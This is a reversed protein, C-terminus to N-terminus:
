NVPRLQERKPEFGDLEAEEPRQQEERLQSGLKEVGWGSTFSRYLPDRGTFSGEVLQELE